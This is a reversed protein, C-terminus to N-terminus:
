NDGKVIAKKSLALLSRAQWIWFVDDDQDPISHSVIMNLCGIIEHAYRM